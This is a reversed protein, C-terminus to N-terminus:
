AFLWSDPWRWHKAHAALSGSPAKMGLERLLRAYFVVLFMLATFLLVSGQEHPRSPPGGKLPAGKCARELPGGLKKEVADLWLSSCRYLRQRTSGKPAGKLTGGQLGAKPAGKPAGKPPGRRLTGLSIDKRTFKASLPGGKPFGSTLLPGWPAGGKTRRRSTQSTIMRQKRLRRLLM